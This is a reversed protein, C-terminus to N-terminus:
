AEGAYNATEFWCKLCILQQQLRQASKAALTCATQHMCSSIEAQQQSMRCVANKYLFSCYQVGRNRFCTRRQLRSISKSLSFIAFWKSLSFCQECFMSQCAEQQLVSMLMFCMNCIIDAETDRKQRRQLKSISQMTTVYFIRYKCYKHEKAICFPLSSSRYARESM